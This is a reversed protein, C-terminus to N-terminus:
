KATKRRELEAIIGDYEKDLKYRTIILALVIYVVVPVYLFIVRIGTLAMAPQVNSSSVFGFGALDM